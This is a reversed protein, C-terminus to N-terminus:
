QVKIEKGKGNLSKSLTKCRHWSWTEQMRGKQNIRKM